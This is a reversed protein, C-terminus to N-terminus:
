TCTVLNPIRMPPCPDYFNEMEDLSAQLIKMGHNNATPPNPLIGLLEVQRVSNTAAGSIASGLCGMRNLVM